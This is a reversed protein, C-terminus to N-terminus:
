KVRKPQPAPELPDVPYVGDGAFVPAFTGLALSMILVLSLLVKKLM